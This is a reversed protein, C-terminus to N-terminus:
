STADSRTATESALIVALQRDAAIVMLGPMADMGMLAALWDLQQGDIVSPRASHRPPHSHWEGVYRVQGATRRHVDQIMEDVGGMGRIFEGREEVSGPPAPTADVLHIAKAPIDVLGFLIGGTERPLKPQRLDRIRRILGDDITVTWGRASYRSVTELPATDVAVEGSPALSWVSIAGADQDVVASLSNAALGSLIAARSEPIRNTIARCAGTYAVTEAEKGLHSALRPTRLVLGYYQAELDRLTSGRDAPEALLVSAEGTPNFFVSIRRAGYDADSLTRAAVVSATADIVIEAATLAGRVSEEPKESFTATLATAIPPGSLIANLRSAVIEAKSRTVQEGIATHRALNHPLLQDDDIVTWTFRGERVLCEAVHSGIAGAGLMVARRTDVQQHGALRTALDREFELNVEASQVVIAALGTADVMGAPIAKVYGVRSGESRREQKLAIGLSVAIDGAAKATVFARMDVGTQRLDRPSLIPMEVIVAFRSQLSWAAGAGADLATSFRTRLDGLLDVGRDNLWLALSALSTPARRMREMRQPAIRYAAITVPDMGAAIHGAETYRKVRLVNKFTADYTGVLHAADPADLISRAVVFSLGSGALIPDLPQRADQLEGRAARRFWSVIRDVFEAPTWTLRAESWPRDDICIVFPHGEPVVQQHETDPFDDRLMVVFPLRDHGVFLIGIRERKLIPYVPAQPVGTLFEAVILEGESNRRLEIVTAFATAYRELFALVQQALPNVLSAADVIEFAALWRDVTM